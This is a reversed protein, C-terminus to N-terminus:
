TINNYDVKDDKLKTQGVKDKLKFVPLVGVLMDKYEHAITGGFDVIYWADNYKQCSSQLWYDSVRNKYEKIRNERTLFYPVTQVEDVTLLRFYDGNDFPILQKKMKSSAVLILDKVLKRLNTNEWEKEHNHRASMYKKAICKDFVFLMGDEERKYATAFFTNEGISFPIKDGIQYHNPLISQTRFVKLM